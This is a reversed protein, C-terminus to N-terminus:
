WPPQPNGRVASGNKQKLVPFAIAAGLGRLTTRRSISQRLLPTM